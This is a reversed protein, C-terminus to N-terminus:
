YKVAVGSNSNYSIMDADDSKTVREIAGAFFWV